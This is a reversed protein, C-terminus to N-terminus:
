FARSRGNTGLTVANLQPRPMTLFANFATSEDKGFSFARSGSVKAFPRRFSDIECM